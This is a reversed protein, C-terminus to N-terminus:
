SREGVDNVIYRHLFYEFIYIVAIFVLSSLWTIYFEITIMDILWAVIVAMIANAVTSSMTGYRPLIMIDGILYNVLTIALAVIFIWILTNREILGYAIWTALFTLVLKMILGLFTNKM